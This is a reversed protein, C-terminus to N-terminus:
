AHERVGFHKLLLVVYKELRGLTLRDVTQADALRGVTARLERVEDRLEADGIHERVSAEISPPTVYAPPAADSM